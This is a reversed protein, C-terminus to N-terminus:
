LITKIKEVPRAVVAKNKYVVIPREILKPFAVMAAIIEEDSLSKAKFNEIWEKEKIRVLDIPKIHLKILLDTLTAVTFTDELYHIVEFPQNLSELFCIGERSKSCRKNHYITIM